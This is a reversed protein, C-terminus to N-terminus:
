NQKTGFAQRVRAAAADAWNGAFLGLAWALFLTASPLIFSTEWFLLSGATVIALFAITTSIAGSGSLTWRRAAFVGLGAVAAAVLFEAWWPMERISRGDRRQALIQAHIEVGHVPEGSAVTLPTLHLDRDRFGGGILVIKGALAGRWSDPLVSGRLNGAGDRHAPVTFATFLDTGGNAPPRRWYILPSAPEPKKGDIDALLQAFAPRYPAEPSPPLMFRVAQDSLTLSNREAAFYLHGAPRGTRAIFAEQYAMGEASEGRFSDAAGLVVPAHAQRIAEALAGDKQPETPRDVIVDLGIAKAGSADALKVLEAILGRDIPSIYNYGTLSQEDILIIAIDNRPSEAQEALFYTRWDYTFKDPAAPLLKARSAAVLVLGALISFLTAAILRKSLEAGAM